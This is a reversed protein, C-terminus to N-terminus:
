SYWSALYTKVLARDGASLIGAFGMWEYGQGTLGFGTGGFNGLTITGSGAAPNTTGVTDAGGDISIASSAGNFRVNMYHIANASVAPGNLQVGGGVARSAGGNFGSYNANSGGDLMYQNGAASTTLFAYFIEYTPQSLTVTAKM